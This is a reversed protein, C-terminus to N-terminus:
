WNILEEIDDEMNEQQPEHRSQTATTVEVRPEEQRSRKGEIIQRSIEFYQNPHTIVTGLSNEAMRHTYELYRTCAKDYQASKSLSIIKETQFNSLGCNQLKQTLLELASHRYPCGHCDQATPAVGLIIKTCPYASYNAHKGEKGYNHRINYAYQKDFKESDMKKTFESRWFSLSDDLTMGIAKLFLGYQMRAGHRLHHDARLRSHIEKMCLPFSTSALSDIMDPTVRAIDTGAYSKGTYSTRSLKTLFPLLRDEEETLGIFRTTRSDVMDPTVRAIDTGAYSKGTYSTRSLKMLFPLLRDEEETLGIFRITRAMAAALNLRFRTCLIVQLDDDSAFAYGYELLVRRRRVLDLAETFPVKWFDTTDVKEHAISCAEALNEFLSAKEADTVLKAEIKNAQLFQKVADRNKSAMGFRFRFLDVEQQIFWKTQEPKQSFALRLIFHSIIDRQREAELQEQPCCGCAIPMLKILEMGFRFRFLDVEQQIFWKTQEPKQSFALRLIFHSIIDRQREAELQEQPCCGCAIPM